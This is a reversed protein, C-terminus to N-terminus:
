VPGSDYVHRFYAWLARESGCFVKLYALTAGLYFLGDLPHKHAFYPMYINESCFNVFDAGVPNSLVGFFVFYNKEFFNNIFAKKLNSKRGFRFGKKQWSKRRPWGVM